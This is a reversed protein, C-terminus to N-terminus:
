IGFQQKLVFDNVDVMFIVVHCIAAILIEKM